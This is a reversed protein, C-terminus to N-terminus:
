KVLRMSRHRMNKEALARREEDVIAAYAREVEQRRTATVLKSAQEPDQPQETM